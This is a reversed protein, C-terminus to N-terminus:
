AFSVLIADQKVLSGHCIQLGHEATPFPSVLAKSTFTELRGVTDSLRGTKASGGAHLNVAYDVVKQTPPACGSAQTILTGELIASM